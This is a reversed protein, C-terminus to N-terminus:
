RAASVARALAARSHIGLKTYIRSLHGEVTKPSVFLTAAVEKTSRGEAVLAAVRRETPTLRDGAPARGGIRGLELRAQEALLRAGLREFVGLAEELAERAARKRKARREIAGRDDGALLAAKIAGVPRGWSDLGAGADWSVRWRDAARMLWEDADPDGAMLLALGAAYAANGRRVISREDEEGHQHEYRARKEEALTLWNM